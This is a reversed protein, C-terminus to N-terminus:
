KYRQMQEWLDMDITGDNPDWNDDMYQQIRAIMRPDAGSQMIDKIPGMGSSFPNEVTPSVISPIFTGPAQNTPDVLNRALEDAPLTPVEPLSADASKPKISKEFMSQQAGKIGGLLGGGDSYGKGFGKIGKRFGSEPNFGMMGYKAASMLSQDLQNGAITDLIDNRSNQYFKGERIDDQTVGSTAGAIISGGAGGLGAGIAAGVGPIPILVQGIIGGILAGWGGGSKKASALTTAQKGVETAEDSVDYELWSSPRINGM